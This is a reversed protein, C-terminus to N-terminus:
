VRLASIDAFTDAKYEGAELKNRCDTFAAITDQVDELNHTSTPILRLLIDGKPVVPYIVVSCFISYNERLDLILNTAEIIGGSMYVPTVPSETAGINFGAEKLGSQLANVVNWLNERLAPMSKLM